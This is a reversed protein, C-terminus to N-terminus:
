VMLSLSNSRLPPTAVDISIMAKRLMSVTTTVSSCMILALNEQNSSGCKEKWGGLNCTFSICDGDENRFKCKCIVSFRNTKDEFYLGPLIRIESPPVM